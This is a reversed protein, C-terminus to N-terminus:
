TNKRTQPMTLNRSMPFLPYILAYLIARRSGKRVCLWLPAQRRGRGGQEAGPVHVEAPLHPLLCLPDRLPHGGGRGSGFQRQPLLARRPVHHGGLVAGGLALGLSM